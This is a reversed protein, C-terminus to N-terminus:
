LPKNTHESVPQPFLETPEDIIDTLNCIFTPTQLGCNTIFHLRKHIIYIGLRCCYLGYLQGVIHTPHIARKGEDCLYALEHLTVTLARNWVAARSCHM